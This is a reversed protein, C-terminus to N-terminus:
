PAAPGPAVEALGDFEAFAGGGEDVTRVPGTFTKRASVLYWITVAAMVALTVLPAYNVSGWSFGSKFYVGAPSVPLCFIIVCLGVWV